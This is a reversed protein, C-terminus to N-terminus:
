TDVHWVADASGSTLAFRDEASGALLVATDTIGLDALQHPTGNGFSMHGRGIIGLVVPPADPGDLARAINCAFARDWVQQAAVFRDFRRAGEPDAAPDAMIRGTMAALQLRYAASAPAPRSVGDEAAMAAAADFGDRGVRRVLDRRCNLGLLSVGDLRGLRILPLYLAPDFGWIQSWGVADLFATEDAIRGACWDDLVPQVDRPFMEFGIAIRGRAALLLRALDAQWLHIAMVDHREGALVVRVDGLRAVLAAETIVTNDDPDIWTGAPCTTV